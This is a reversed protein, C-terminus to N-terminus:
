AGLRARLEAGVPGVPPVPRYRVRAARDYGLAAEDLAGDTTAALAIFVDGIAHAVGDPHEPASGGRARRVVHQARRLADRV